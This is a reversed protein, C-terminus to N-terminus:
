QRSELAARHDGAAPLLKCLAAAHGALDVKRRFLGKSSGRYAQDRERERERERKRERERERERDQDATRASVNARSSMLVECLDTSSTASIHLRLTVGLKTRPLSLCLLCGSM